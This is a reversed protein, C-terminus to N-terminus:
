GELERPRYVALVVPGGDGWRIHALSATPFFKGGEPELTAGGLDWVLDEFGPNHGVLLLRAVYRNEEMVRALDAPSAGYLRQDWVIADEEIGLEAVVLRVTQAARVAPSSVVRDPVLKHQVLLRGMQPAARRGRAALPREFDTAVDSDWSSKAHRLLLIERGATVGGM